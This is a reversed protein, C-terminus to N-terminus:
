LSGAADCRRGSSCRTAAGAPQEAPASASIALAMRSPVTQAQRNRLIALVSGSPSYSVVHTQLVTKGAPDVLLEFPLQHLDGDPSVILRSRTAMEPIRDLLAEGLSRADADSSQGDRVSKLLRGARDEIGTKSALRQVRASARTVVLCFSDPEDLTFELFLEDPRLV